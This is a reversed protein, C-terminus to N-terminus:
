LVGDKVEYNEKWCDEDVIVDNTPASPDQFNRNVRHTVQCIYCDGRYLSTKLQIDPSTNAISVGKDPSIMTFKTSLSGFWDEYDNLSIRESIAFFPSKDNYRIKFIEDNSMRGLGPLKIDILASNTPFKSLALYPGFSGRVLNSAKTIKNEYGIYKYRFAEEANGARASFMNDKIAVLEVNDEVGLVRIDYINKDSKPNCGLSYFHRKDRTLYGPQLDSYTVTFSDGTFIENFHEPEVDYEPCIAGEIRVNTNRTYLRDEFNDSLVRDDDLFREIRYENEGTPIMPLYSESDIGITLAQCLTQM